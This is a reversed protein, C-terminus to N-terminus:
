RKQLELLVSLELSTHKIKKKIENCNHNDTPKNKYSVFLIGLETDVGHVICAGFHEIGNSKLKFYLGRDIEELDDTNGCWYGDKNLKYVFPLLSLQLDQYQSAIPYMDDGIVEFIASAKIFPLGGINKNGNHYELLLIDDAYVQYFLKELLLNIKENNIIRNNIKDDHIDQIYQTYKDFLYTPNTIVFVTLAIMFMIVFAKFITTIKHTSIINLVRELWNIGNDIKEKM